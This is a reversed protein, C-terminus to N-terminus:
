NAPPQDALPGWRKVETTADVTARRAPGYLRIATDAVDSAIALARAPDGLKGIQQALVARTVLVEADDPGLAETGDDIVQQAIDRARAYDGAGEERGGTWWALLWGLRVYLDAPVEGLSNFLGELWALVQADLEADSLEDVIDGMNAVADVSMNQGAATEEVLAQYLAIAARLDGCERTAFAVEFRAARGVDYGEVPDPV